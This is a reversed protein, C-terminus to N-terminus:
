RTTRLNTHQKLSHMALLTQNKKLSEVPADPQAWHKNVDAWGALTVRPGVASVFVAFEDM